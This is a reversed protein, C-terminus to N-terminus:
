SLELRVLEGRSSIGTKAFVNRLHFDVTRPSLFLQAAVERNTLGQAVHRAIQREQATLTTVVSDDRKRASEGSARLETRAREAWPAAGLDDFTGLARRLHERADVRRRSRRLFEGLGLQIRATEFPRNVAGQHELAAAFFAEASDPQALLARGYAVVAHARPTDVADAFGGLDRLWQEALDRRDTRV